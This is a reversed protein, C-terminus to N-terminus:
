QGLNGTAEEARRTANIGPAEKHDNLRWEEGEWAMCVSSSSSQVRGLYGQSAAPARVVAPLREWLLMGVRMLRGCECYLCRM